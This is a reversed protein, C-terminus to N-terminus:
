FAADGEARVILLGIGVIRFLLTEERPEGPFNERHQDDPGRNADHGGPQRHKVARRPSDAISRPFGIEGTPARSAIRVLTRENRDMTEEREILAFRNVVRRGDVVVPVRKFAAAAIFDGAVIRVRSPPANRSVACVIIQNGIRRM